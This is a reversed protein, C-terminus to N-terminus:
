HQKKKKAKRKKAKAEELARKRAEEAHEVGEALQRELALLKDSEYSRLREVNVTPVVM